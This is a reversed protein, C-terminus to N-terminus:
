IFHGTRAHATSLCMSFYFVDLLTPFLIPETFARLALTTFIALAYIRFTLANKQSVVWIIPLLIAILYFLGYLHHARIYSNHPNSSYVQEIETDSYDVGMFLEWAGLKNLYTQNISLRSQDQLGGGIKTNEELFAIISDLNSYLLILLVLTLFVKLLLKFIGIKPFKFQNIFFIFNIALLMLSAIISGRGWGVICIGFTIICTLLSVKRTAIFKVLSYNCQLLILYSTIGNSSANPILDDLPFNDLGKQSLFILVLIQCIILVTQSTKFYSSIDKTSIIALTILLFEMLIYVLVSPSRFINFPLTILMTIIIIWFLTIISSSSGVQVTGFLSKILTKYHWLVFFFSILLVLAQVYVLTSAFGLVLLLFVLSQINNKTNLKPSKSM